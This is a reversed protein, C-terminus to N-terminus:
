SWQAACLHLYYMAATFVSSIPHGSRDQPGLYFIHPHEFGHNRAPQTDLGEKKTSCGSHTGVYDSDCQFGPSLVHWAGLMLSLSHHASDCM